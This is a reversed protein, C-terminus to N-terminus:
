KSRKRGFCRLPKSWGRIEQPGLDDLGLSASPFFSDSVVLDCGHLKAVEQLRATGTLVPGTITIHGHQAGGLISPLARGAHASVRTDVRPEKREDFQRNLNLLEVELREISKLAAHTPPDAQPTLGFIVMVGDGTFHEVVGGFPLVSREVTAHVEQLFRATEAPSQNASRSTFGVVDICLAAAEIERDPDSIAGHERISQRLAPSTFRALNDGANRETVIRTLAAWAGSVAICLAIQALFLATNAELTAFGIVFAASVSIIFLSTAFLASRHTLAASVLISLVVALGASILFATAGHKLGDGATMNAAATALVEVGPLAKDFTTPYRDGFGTATTGLFVVRDSLRANGARVESPAFTDISGEPGYYSLRLLQPLLETELAALPLAQLRFGSVTAYSQLHRLVGDADPQIAVHGLQVIRALSDVPGLPRAGEGLASIASGKASRAIAQGLDQSVPGSGGQPSIALVSHPANRLANSLRPDHRSEGVFLYDLAIARAGQATAAEVMEAILGRADQHSGFGDLAENNLAIIAVDKPAAKVGGMRMLADIVQGNLIRLSSPQWLLTAGFILFVSAVSLVASRM